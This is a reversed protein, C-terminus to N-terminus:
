LSYKERHKTICDLVVDQTAGNPIVMEEAWTPYFVSVEGGLHVEPHAIDPHDQWNVANVLHENVYLLTYMNDRILFYQADHIHACPRIDTSYKSSRVGRLFDVSARSNLLCWSQGLANGATRGEGEAEKLTRKTGLISQELLPTRVRLGFAVTVYGDKTAQEIRDAVWQDSVQYLEHYKAEVEMAKEIPWGMKDVIGFHKGGYTLLFTPTKSEQREDPYRKKISNISKVSTPDIDPMKDGFYSYARLCHGDFGDTYVKLKNPDKTTLASIRDELSDFDLGVFLWGPPARFCAKVKKAWRGKSPLNQLNPGSSSLRGSVTGGLNFNGFLYHWGDPGKAAKLFNPIFDTLLKNVGKYDVLADLFELVEDVETHNRLDELTAGGASANKSKTFAIVPLSMNNGTYLIDQLQVNSNPNFELNFNGPTYPRVKVGQSKRLEWDSRRKDEAAQNLQNVYAQVFVNSRMRDLADQAFEELEVKLRKVEEMDVPMGTLQMQIIDITAPKFLEEYITLQDDRVMTDYHKEYVYWTSLGDVLNYRLLDDLPIQTIDKIEEVAYNGAFEQAQDKLGLKNGACSNTALYTILKTDEWNELFLDIGNLIGRTDLLDDMCLQYILVYVDFAINHWIMKRGSKRFKRFFEKLLKRIFLNNKHLDVPFAIGEHKSWCFSITGIGATHHKLSFTEIDATLDCGMDLLSDLWFRIEEVTKPYAEFHIIDTGPAKYTSTIHAKMATMSQSIKANVKEPDYIAALHNPCYLIKFGELSHKQKDGDIYEGQTELVYGLNAEAPMSKTLAKFYDSDCVVLYQTGLQRLAPLLEMALFEKMVKMPTKKGTKHLGYAVVDDRAEELHPQMFYHEIANRELRPVLLAIPYTSHEQAGFTLYRM